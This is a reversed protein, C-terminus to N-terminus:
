ARSVEAPARAPRGPIPASVPPPCRPKLPQPQEHGGARGRTVADGQYTVSHARVHTCVGCTEAASFM